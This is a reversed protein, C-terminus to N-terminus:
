IQETLFPLYNDRSIQLFDAHPYTEVWTKPAKIRKTKFKFEYGFLRGAREEVLDLEALINNANSELDQRNNHSKNEQTLEKM